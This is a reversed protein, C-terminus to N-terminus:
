DKVPLSYMHQFPKLKYRYFVKRNRATPNAFSILIKGPVNVHFSNSIMRGIQKGKQVLVNYSGEDEPVFEEKYSVESGTVTIDWYVTMGVEKTVIQVSDTAYEKLRKELVNDEYTFEGGVRGLGGYQALLHQPEIFKLLTETVASPKVYMVKYKRTMLRMNLTYFAFFWMPVNVIVFRYILGPYNEQLISFYRKSGQFNENLFRRPINKEDIIQILSDAGDHRFDLRRVCGEMLRIRWRLFEESSEKSGLRRKLMEKDKFAEYLQYCLPHGAKDTGEIYGINDLDSGFVEDVVKDVNYDERWMVMNGIMELANQVNYDKTKLFKKLIMDTREDGKSPLLPVGWLQIDKLNNNVKCKQKVLTNNIMAHELKTRLDTLANRKKKRLETGFISEPAHDNTKPTIIIIDDDDGEITDHFTETPSEPDDAM